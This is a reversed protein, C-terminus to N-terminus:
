RRRKFLWHRTSARAMAALSDDLPIQQPCVEVCNRAQGCGAIGARALLAGHRQEAGIASSPHMGLVNVRNIAAAGVFRRDVRYQPCAELCSGCDICRWLAFRKQQGQPSEGPAPSDDDAPESWARLTEYHEGLRPRDVVLDRRVAFKSLPALEIVPRKKKSAVADVLTSCAQCVRGNVLLTCCGCTQELCPSQWVVPEVERGAATHPNQRIHRLLSVITMGAVRPVEFEDIRRAGTSDQRKVRVLIQRETRKAAKVGTKKSRETPPIPDAHGYQRPRPPLLSVDVENTVTLERTGCGYTFSEVLEIQGDNHRALSARPRQSADPPSLDAKHHVGRSEDRSLAATVMARALLLTNELHRGFVAQEAAPSRSHEGGILAARQALETLQKLAKELASNERRVGLASTVLKVLQTHLDDGGEDDGKLRQQYAAQEQELAASMLGASTGSDGGVETELRLGIAWAALRAGYLRALLDNGSLRCAGHYLYAAEGVAYLGALNTAHNRASDVVIEGQEDAEYDVWLGGCSGNPAVFVGM